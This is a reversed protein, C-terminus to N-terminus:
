SAELAAIGAREAAEATAFCRPKNRSDCLMEDDVCVSFPRATGNCEISTVRVRAAAKDSPVNLATPKM